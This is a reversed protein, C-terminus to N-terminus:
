EAPSAEVNATRQPAKSVAANQSIRRAVMDVIAQYEAAGKKAGDTKAQRAYEFITMCASAAERFSVTEHVAPLILQPPLKSLDEMQAQTERTIRGEICNPLIGM